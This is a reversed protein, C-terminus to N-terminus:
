VVCNCGPIFTEVELTLAWTYSTRLNAMINVKSDRHAQLFQWTRETSASVATEMGGYGFSTHTHRQLLEALSAFNDYVEHSALGKGGGKNAEDHEGLGCQPISGVLGARLTEPLIHRPGRLCTEISTILKWITPTTERQALGGGKIDFMAFNMHLTILNSKLEALEKIAAERRKFAASVNFTLPFICGASFIAFEVHFSINLMPRSVLFISMLTVSAMAIGEYSLMFAIGQGLAGVLNIFEACTERLLVPKCIANDRQRLSVGLASM